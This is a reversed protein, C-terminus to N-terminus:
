QRADQLRDRETAREIRQLQEIEKSIDMSRCVENAIERLNQIAFVLAPGAYLPHAGRFIVFATGALLITCSGLSTLIRARIKINKSFSAALMRTNRNSSPFTEIPSSILALASQRKGALTLL